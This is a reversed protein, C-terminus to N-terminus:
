ICSSSGSCSDVWKMFFHIKRLKIKTNLLICLKNEIIIKHETINMINSIDITIGTATIAFSLKIKKNDVGNNGVM